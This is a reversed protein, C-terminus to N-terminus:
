PRKDTVFTDSVPMFTVVIGATILCGYLRDLDPAMKKNLINKMLILVLDKNVDLVM